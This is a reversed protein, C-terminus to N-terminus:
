AATTAISGDVPRTSAIASCLSASGEIRPRQVRASYGAADIKLIMVAAASSSCPTEGSAVVQKWPPLRFNVGCSSSFLVSLSERQSVIAIAIALLWLTTKPL